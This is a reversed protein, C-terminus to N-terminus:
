GKVTNQVRKIAKCATSLGLNQQHHFVCVRTADQLARFRPFTQTLVDCMVDCGSRELGNFVATKVTVSTGRLPRGGSSRVHM